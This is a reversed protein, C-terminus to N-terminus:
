GFEFGLTERFKLEFDLEFRFFNRHLYKNREEFGQIGYKIQFKKLVNLDDKSQIFNLNLKSFNSYM